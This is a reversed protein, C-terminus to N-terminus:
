YYILRLKSYRKYYNKKVKWSKQLFMLSLVCICLLSTCFYKKEKTDKNQLRWRRTVARVKMKVSTSVKTIESNPWVDLIINYIM